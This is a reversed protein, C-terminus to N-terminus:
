KQARKDQMEKLYRKNSHAFDDKKQRMSETKRADFSAPGPKNNRVEPRAEQDMTENIDDFDEVDRDPGPLHQQDEPLTNTDDDYEDEEDKRDRGPRM